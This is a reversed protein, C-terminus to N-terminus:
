KRREAQIDAWQADTTPEKGLMVHTFDRFARTHHDFYASHNSQLHFTDDYAEARFAMISQEHRFPLRHWYRKANTADGSLHTIGELKKPDRGYADDPALGQVRDGEPVSSEYVHGRPVNYQDISQVGSGPSGCMILNDVTGKAVQTMAKGGTTSGYSHTLLTNTFSHGNANGHARLGEMFRAIKPAGENAYDINAAQYLKPGPGEPAVYGLYSITAVKNSDVGVQGAQARLRDNIDMYYGLRERVNTGIGPVLTSVYAATDPNGSAVIATTRHHKTDYNFDLLYAPAHESKQLQHNLAELDNLAEEAQDLKLKAANEDSYLQKIGPFLSRRGYAIRYETKAKDFAQKADALAGQRKTGYADVYGYLANRSAEDRVTAPLGDLHRIDDPCHEILFRRREAPLSKWWAANQSPTWGYKPFDPVGIVKNEGRDGDWYTDTTIDNLASSLESDVREAHMLTTEVKETLTLTAAAAELTSELDTPILPICFASGDSSITCNNASAYALADDVHAKVMAVGDRAGEIAFLVGSVNTLARDLSALNSITSSRMANVAVGESRVAGLADEGTAHASRLGQTAELFDAAISDLPGPEWDKVDAWSIAM